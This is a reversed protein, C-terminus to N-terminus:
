IRSELIKSETQDEISPSAERDYIEMGIPEKDYDELVSDLMAYQEIMEAESHADSAISYVLSGSEARDIVKRAFWEADEASYFNEDSTYTKRQKMITRGNIEVVEDLKEALDLYEEIHEEEVYKRLHPSTLVLDWHSHIVPTDGAIPNKLGELDRHVEVDHRQYLEEVAQDSFDSLDASRLLKAKTEELYWDFVDEVNQDMSSRLHELDAKRLYQTQKPHPNAEVFKEPIYHTSLVVHDFENSDLFEATKQDNWSEYDREISSFLESGSKKARENLKSFLQKAEIFDINDQNDRNYDRVFVDLDEPAGIEETKFSDRQERIASYMVDMNSSIRDDGEIELIRYADDNYLMVDDLNDRHHDAFAMGELGLKSGLELANHMTIGDSLSSHLHPDFEINNFDIQDTIPKPIDFDKSSRRARSTSAAMQKIHSM